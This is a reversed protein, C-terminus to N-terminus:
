KETNSSTAADLRRGAARAAREPAAPHGTAPVSNGFSKSREVQTALRFHGKVEEVTLPRDYLAVEDMLGVFPRRFGTHHLKSDTLTTLRGLLFQCPAASANPTLPQSSQFNGDMFLEMRDGNLQSVVHHWRCPVYIDNSFMNDGGGRGTPWRYLFRVSAPRYLTLRHSSTLEVLALHHTTDKPTVMSALAAHSITESLFWFEIACGVRREFKWLGKMELYQTDEGPPFVASHNDASTPVVRIPGKTVLPAGGKVENPIEGNATSEFRWYSSPRLALVTDAYSPDLALGPSDLQLPTVFDEAGAFPGISGLEPNIEFAENDKRVHQSRRLAGSDGVLAAEVEGEFVKGRSKGDPTVNVGFETGLDLVATGPGSVLFGEAGEPVRARVKGRHCAVRNISILEVDSPGEVVILVGTLMSLTARGSDVRLRGAALVEGSRPHRGDETEWKVGDSRVVVALGESVDVKRPVKREPRNVVPTPRGDRPWFAVLVCAVLLTAAVAWGVVPGFLWKPVRSTRRETEAHTEAFLDAGLPDFPLVEPPSVPMSSGGPMAIPSAGSDYDLHLLAHVSMYKLYLDQAEPSDRLLERLREAQEPALAGDVMEALLRFFEEFHISEDRM